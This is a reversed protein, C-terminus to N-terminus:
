KNKSDISMNSRDDKPEFTSKVFKNKLPSKPRSKVENDKRPSSRKNMASNSIYPNANKNLIEPEIKKSM